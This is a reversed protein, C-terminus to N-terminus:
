GKLEDFAAITRFIQLAVQPVIANGGAKISEERWFTFEKKRKSKGMATAVERVTAFDLIDSFGDDRSCLPPVTPWITWDTIQYLKSASGSPQQWGIQREQDPTGFQERGQLGTHGTHTDIGTEGDDTPLWENDGAGTHRQERTGPEGQREKGRRGDEHPNESSRTDTYGPEADNDRQPIEGAKEQLQGSGEGFSGNHPNFSSQEEGCRESRTNGQKIGSAESIQLGQKTSHAIFWIRDRRHPANVGAAPLVVPWVKFDENELDACVTDFVLGGDWNVLGYVNEGVVWRPAYREYLASCKPGFTAPTTQARENEPQASPSVLSAAQLSTLEEEGFLSTQKLLM